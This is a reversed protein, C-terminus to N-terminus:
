CCHSLSVGIHPHLKDYYTLVDHGLLPAFMEREACTEANVFLLPDLVVNPNAPVDDEHGTPYAPLVVFSYEGSLLSEGRITVRDRLVKEIRFRCNPSSITELRERLTSLTAVNVSQFRNTLMRM